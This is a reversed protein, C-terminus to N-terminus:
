AEEKESTRAERNQDDDDAGASDQDEDRTGGEGPGQAPSGPRRFDYRHVACAAAQLLTDLDTSENSVDACFGRQM